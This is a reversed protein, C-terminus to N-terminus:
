RLTNSFLGTASCFFPARACIANMAGEASSAAGGYRYGCINRMACKFVAAYIARLLPYHVSSWTAKEEREVESVYGHVGELQTHIQVNAVVIIRRAYMESVKEMTRQM